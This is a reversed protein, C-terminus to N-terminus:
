KHSKARQGRKPKDRGGMKKAGKIKPKTAPKDDKHAM